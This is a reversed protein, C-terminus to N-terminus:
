ASGAGVRREVELADIADLYGPDRRWHRLEESAANQPLRDFFAMVKHVESPDVAQEGGRGKRSLLYIPAFTAKDVDLAKCAAALGRGGTEYLVHQLRPPKLGAWTGFLAEFLPLEGRRLTRVLLAADIGKEESIRQALRWAPDDPELSSKHSPAEEDSGTAIGELLDDLENTDVAYTSLIRQRLAASVMLYLKRVITPSLDRRDVLPELYSDRTRAQDLLYAQTAEAIAARENRLLAAIVDGDETEALAQAVPASVSQRLAVAIQHQRGRNEIIKILDSDQLVRSQMLVPRAVEIEDNALMTVLEAPAPGKDALRRALERRVSTEFEGILKELIDTMLASERETLAVARESFVDGVMDVLRMRAEVSKDRALELLESVQDVNSM